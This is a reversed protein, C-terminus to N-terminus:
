RVVEYQTPLFLPQRYDSSQILPCSWQVPSSSEGKVKVQALFLPKELPTDLIEDLLTSLLERAFRARFIKRGRGSKNVVCALKLAAVGM